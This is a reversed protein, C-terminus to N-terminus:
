RHKQSGFRWDILGSVWDNGNEISTDLIRNLFERDFRGRRFSVFERFSSVFFDYGFIPGAFPGFFFCIRVPGPSAFNGSKAATLIQDSKM